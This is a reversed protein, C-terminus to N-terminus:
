AFRTFAVIITRQPLLSGGVPILCKSEIKGRRVAIARDDVVVRITEIISIETENGTRKAHQNISQNIVQNSGVWQYNLVHAM